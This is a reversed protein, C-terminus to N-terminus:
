SVNPILTYIYIYSYIYIYIYIWIDVCVVSRLSTYIVQIFRRCTYICLLRAYTYSRFSFYERTLQDKRRAISELRVVPFVFMSSNRKRHFNYQQLIRSVEPMNQMSLFGRARISFEVVFTHSLCATTPLLTLLELGGETEWSRHLPFPSYLRV